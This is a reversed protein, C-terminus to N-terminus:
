DAASGALPSDVGPSDTDHTERCATMERQGGGGPELLPHIFRDVLAVFYAAPGIEGHRAIRAIQLGLVLIFQSGAQPDGRLCGRDEQRMAAVIDDAVGRVAHHRVQGQLSGADRRLQVDICRGGVVEADTGDVM